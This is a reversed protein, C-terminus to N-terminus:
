CQLRCCRMHAWCSGWAIGVVSSHAVLAILQVHASCIRCDSESSARILKCYFIDALDTLTRGESLRAALCAAADTEAAHWSVSIDCFVATTHTDNNWKPKKKGGYLLEIYLRIQNSLLQNGKM